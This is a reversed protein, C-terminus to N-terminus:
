QHLLKLLLKIFNGEQELLYDIINIIDQLEYTQYFKKTITM